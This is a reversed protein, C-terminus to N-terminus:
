LGIDKVVIQGCYEAGNLHAQKRKHFTVTLDARFVALPDDGLPGAEALGSPVDVSVHRVPVTDRATEQARLIPQLGTIPRTLGIGFLADIVLTTGSRSYAGKVFAAAEEATVDPFTLKTTPGVSLALWRDHNLRADPSLNDAAGYFFVEVQVGRQALLRAVVFGDGGNNGPGCLVLAHPSSVGLDPWAEYIAEVVDRGAREMLAEGTVRGSEIAETEVARMQDATIWEGM